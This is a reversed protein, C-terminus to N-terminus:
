HVHGASTACTPSGGATSTSCEDHKAAPTLRPQLGRKTGTGKQNKTRQHNKQRRRREKMAEKGTSCDRSLKERKAGNYAINQKKATHASTKIDGEGVEQMNESPMHRTCKHNKSDNASYQLRGQLM